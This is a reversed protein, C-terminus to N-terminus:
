VINHHGTIQFSTWFLLDFSKRLRKFLSEALRFRVLPDINDKRQTLFILIADGEALGSYGGSLSLPNQVALLDGFLQQIPHSWIM